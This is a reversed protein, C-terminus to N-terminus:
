ANPDVANPEAAPTPAVVNPDGTPAPATAPEPQAQRAEEEAPQDESEEEVDELLESRSKTLYKAKWDPIEYVWGKHRLTFKQAKEDALLKAEKEKLQEESEVENLKKTVPTPDTYEAECTLYTKDDKKGLHLRYETSDDLRCVYQHDFSVGEIDAPKNVDDFRLSTLAGFVSKADSEKLKKDTPVDEMVVGDGNEGRLTYTGESTTVTVANVDERKVSVIEQDVYDLARSRFWPVSEALYVTDSSAQRVFTNQGAEQSKGIIVGTLLSGDDKLFKVVHRAKEETVELEEHNAANDTYAETTKVDLSKTILDNIQKPDAPYDSENTVVFGKDQREIKIADDDHGVVISDIDAPDLGQILYAPGSLRAGGRNSLRPQVAAWLILVAAVVALIGLKQNSM